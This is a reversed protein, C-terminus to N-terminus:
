RATREFGVYTLGCIRNFKIDWCIV